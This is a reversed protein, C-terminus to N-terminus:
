GCRVSLADYTGKDIVLDFSSDEFSMATADMSVGVSLWLLCLDNRPM